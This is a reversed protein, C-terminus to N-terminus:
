SLKGWQSLGAWWILGTLTLSGILSAWSLMRV